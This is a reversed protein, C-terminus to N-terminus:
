FRDVKAALVLASGPDSLKPFREKLPTNDGKLSRNAPDNVGYLGDQGYRGIHYAVGDVLEAGNMNEAMLALEEDRNLPFTGNYRNLLGVTSPNRTYATLYDPQESSVYHALLRGGFGRGQYKPEIAIGVLEVALSGICSSYLAFGKLEGNVYGLQIQDSDLVHDKTDQYMEAETQEFGLSALRNVGGMQSETLDSPKVTLIREM